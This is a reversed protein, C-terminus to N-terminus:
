VLLKTKLRSEIFLKREFKLVLETINCTKNYM